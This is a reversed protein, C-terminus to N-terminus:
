PRTVIPVVVAIADSVTVPDMAFGRKATALEEPVDNRETEDVPNPVVVSEPKFMEPEAVEVELTPKM